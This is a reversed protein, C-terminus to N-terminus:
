KSIQGQGKPCLAADYKLGGNLVEVQAVESEIAVGYCIHPAVLLCQEM